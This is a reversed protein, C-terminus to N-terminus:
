LPKCTECVFKTEVSSKSWVYVFNPQSVQLGEYSPDGKYGWWM